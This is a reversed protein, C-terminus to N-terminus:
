FSSINYTRQPIPTVVTCVEFEKITDRLREPRKNRPTWICGQGLISTLLMAHYIINDFSRQM